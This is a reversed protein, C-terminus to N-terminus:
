DKCPIISSPIVLGSVSVSGNLLCHSGRTMLPYTASHSTNFGHRVRPKPITLIGTARPNQTARSGKNQTNIRGSEAKASTTRNEGIFVLNICARAECGQIFGLIKGLTETFEQFSKAGVTLEPEFNRSRPAEYVEGQGEEEPTRKEQSQAAGFHLKSRQSIEVLERKHYM